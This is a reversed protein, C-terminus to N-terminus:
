RSEEAEKGGRLARMGEALLQACEDGLVGGISSVPRGFAADGPIDYRSGCCGMLNDRAGYVILAIRAMAAAGACLPCPELTVFLTCESLRWDGIHAAAERLALIEAHATPDTLEVRRKRGRGIIAGNHTVVAGVPIEGASAAQKALSLAARMAPEHISM